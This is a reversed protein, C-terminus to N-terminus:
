TPQTHSVGFSSHWLYSLPLYPFLLAYNILIDVNVYYRLKSFIGVTKSLKLCLENVHNKWTLNSDFTVGLYKVTSLEHINVRDIKLNLSKYPKLRKSHFLVFNTKLISLALRNSKVWEAVAYLEQNLILELDNLNKRSLYINTDDAFIRFSLLKWTNPLDNIYLLFLLPGLISEQPVGCTIPLSDSNHGNICVFQERNSLYSHFWDYAKGRVGYHNLKSLLISHNVTDFAKKLDIFIGCSFENNDVSNRISETIQILAHNTSCKQRFGFQLPYLINRSELYGHLRKFM